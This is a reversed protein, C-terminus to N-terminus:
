DWQGRAATYLLLPSIFVWFAAEFAIKPAFIAWVMLHRRHYLGCVSCCFLTFLRSFLYCLYAGHLRPGLSARPAKQDSPYRDQFLWIEASIMALFALVDCTFTNVM